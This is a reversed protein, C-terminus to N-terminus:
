FLEALTLRLKKEQGGRGVVIDYRTGAKETLVERVGVVGDLLDVDIGNITKLIDGALFGAKEAPTGESVYLIEVAKRDTTWALQLGSRDEPWPQNFRAGKELVVRENAYDCYVVFNRFLNNGLLGIRDATPGSESGALAFGVRPSYVTFGGLQISDCKISKNPFTHGAGRGLSVVGKRGTFKEREAYPPELSVSGAGLDFLWTGSHVGDLTATTEFVSQKMHVDLATGPGEYKFTAPDYFSVLENAYDVKTVFRSLFDYGLIGALDLGIIRNLEDMDMAAVQQEKFKIGKVSYPPLTTFSIAVTGGAGAGKMDGQLELGLEEAFKKSIVTMSAGTDLVWLREKCGVVVPIFLHNGIFQFPIDEARDGAAFAFDKEGESPPDFVAPDVPANSVYSVVTVEQEQGTQHAVERTFFPVMLGSVERFDSPYSDASQEGQLTVLKEPLFTAVNLYMTQSDENISNTIKAVYCDKDNIKEIGAFAVTFVPSAPDAYEFEAMRRKVEKRKTTAEDDKSIIQLKGNSDLVWDLKGNSGQTVKLVTLDVEARSRDPQLSWAKLTGKLGALALTGEVYSSKEAKLRELGGSAEFYGNLIAYPDTLTGQAAAIGALLLVAILTLCLQKM